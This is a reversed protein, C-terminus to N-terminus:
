VHARGIENNFVSNQKGPTGGSVDNSAIWNYSGGICNAKPNILELSYGGDEKKDDKYWSIDYTVQNIIEEMTNELTLITGTNKLASWSTLGVVNGFSAFAATDDEDCLIMYENPLLYGSNLSKGEFVLNSLNILKNSVNYLEIYEKEPLGVSDVPDAMIENILIEGELPEYGIAIKSIESEIGNGACDSVNTIGFDYVIYSDLKQSLYLNLNLLNTTVSISSVSINNSIFYTGTTLSLSDMPESFYVSITSDNLIEVLTYNPAINDPSTDYISNQQGPTGGDTAISANWNLEYLNCLTEPNIRELSYGGDDKESDNYWSSYYRVIDIVKGQNDKITLSDGTNSLATWSGDIGIVDGYDNFLVTDTASCLIVYSDPLLYFNTDITKVTTSNIYNWNKLNFVKSSNNYLELFEKEPMGVSPSPDAFIENILVDGLDANEAQFYFFSAENEVIINSSLDEINTVTINYTTANVLPTNLTLEVTAGNTISVSIPQGLGNDITYNNIDNATISTIEESFYVAIETQTSPIISDISPPTLDPVPNGSVIVDDFWFKTSRTSTYDCLFGFYNSVIHTEDNAIGISKYNIGGLTDALLEWNGADDRTVKLGINVPTTQTAFWWNTGDILKTKDTGTQEYLSIQDPSGGIEVFYGNLPNELNQEDSILYIRSLNSSSPNFNMEVYCEWSANEVAVSPTSLHAESTIAAGILHLKFNGDVEFISDDGIWEPVNLFDGDNFNDIVQAYLGNCFLLLFFSVVQRFM